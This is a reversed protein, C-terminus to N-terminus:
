MSWCFRRVKVVVLFDVPCLKGFVCLGSKSLGCHGGVYNECVNNQHCFFCLIGFPLTCLSLLGKGSWMTHLIVCIFLMLLALVRLGARLSM